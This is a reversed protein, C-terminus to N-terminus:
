LLFRVGHILGDRIQYAVAAHMEAPYGALDIGSVEEEDIVYNGIVVRNLIKARLQPSDRFLPEYFARM